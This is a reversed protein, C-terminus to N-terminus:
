IYDKIKFLEHWKFLSKEGYPSKGKFIKATSHTLASDWVNRKWDISSKAGYFAMNLPRVSFDGNGREWSDDFDKKQNTELEIDM